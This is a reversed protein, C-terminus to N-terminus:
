AWPDSRKLREAMAADTNTFEHRLMAEIEPDMADYARANFRPFNFSASLPVGLFDLARAVTASPDHELDTTRLTLVRDVGFLREYAGIQDEYRGRAIYSHHQHEYSVYSRNATLKDVEGSLRDEELALASAFDVREFGRKVEHNHHSLARSVPDRVLFIFKPDGIADAIRTPVMPHFSYYPCAEVVRLDCGHRQRSLRAARATPFHSRYWDLDKDFNTDFFHVGKELRPGIVSPHQTLYRFISTTGCRQAGIIFTNPVVRSDATVKGWLQATGKLTARIPAPVGSGGLMRRGLMRPQKSEATEATTSQVMQELHTERFRLEALLDRRTNRIKPDSVLASEDYRQSLELLYLSTLLWRNSPSVGLRDLDEAVESEAFEVAATVQQNSRHFAQQFQNHILDIGLPAEDSAREWDWVGLKRGLRAMNWPAWDGHSFGFDISVNGYKSTIAAIRHLLEDDIRGAHRARHELNRLWSSDALTASTVGRHRAIETVGIRVLHEGPVGADAHDLPETALVTLGRWSGFHLVDPVIVDRLEEDLMGNLVEAERTVMQRTSQDWGVKAFAVLKGDADMVQLVPKRNPRLPGITAAIHLGPVGLSAELYEVITMPERDGPAEAVSKADVSLIIDAGTALQDLGTKALESGIRRLLKMAQTSESGVRRLAASRVKSSRASILLKPDGDTPFVTYRELEVHGEPAARRSVQVADSSGRLVDILWDIPRESVGAPQVTPTTVVNWDSSRHHNMLANSSTM